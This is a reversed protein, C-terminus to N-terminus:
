RTAETDEDQITSFTRYGLLLKGHKVDMKDQLLKVGNGAKRDSSITKILKTDHQESFFDQVM